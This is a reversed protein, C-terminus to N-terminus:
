MLIENAPQLAAPPNKEGLYELLDIEITRSLATIPVDNPSGEFPNESVSGIKDLTHIIWALVVCIPINLWVLGMRAFEEVLGLPALLIFIWVFLHNLTAFQRPYPYNKIRECKGQAEVLALLMREMEVHRFESLAGAAHLGRLTEGQRALIHAALNKKGLVAAAEAEPLRERLEAEIKGDWEAVSYRKRYEENERRRMNEWSRPERLQYRLATLWALHRRILEERVAREGVFDLTLMAWGRSNNVIGGWIQRAEWLRGYSANNKFGTVFAVATGIMAIPQWPLAPGSGTLGHVATPAAAIVAFVATERWTWPLIHSLPYKAGTFM